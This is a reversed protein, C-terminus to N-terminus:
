ISSPAGEPVQAPRRLATAKRVRLVAAALRRPCEMHVAHGCGPLVELTANPLVALMRRATDLQFLGDKEGWILATPMRLRRLDDDDFTDDESLGDLVSTVSRSTYGRLFADRSLRMYWPVHVFLAKYLRGVGAQDRVRVLAEIAEWDQHRYGGADILVLRSVLDPRRLALRVALWGGLSLGAVTVPRADFEKELLTAVVDVGDRIGLGGSPVQSGGLESLEPVILRCRGRLALLVSGWTAAVSGLGHLLVWPEGREPGLMWYAVTIPGVQMRRRKAGFLLLLFTTILTVLYLAM